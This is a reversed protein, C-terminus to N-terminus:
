HIQSALRHISHIRLEQPRGDILAKCTTLSTRCSLHKVSKLRFVRCSDISLFQHISGICVVQM